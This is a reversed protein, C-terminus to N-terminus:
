EGEDEKAPLTNAASLLEAFESLLGSNAKVASEVEKRRLEIEERRMLMEELKVQRDVIISLVTFLQPLPTSIIRSDKAAEELYKEMIEHVVHSNRDMTNLMMDVQSQRTAKIADQMEKNSLIAYVYSRSINYNDAIEQTSIGNLYDNMIDVKDDWTIKADADKVSRNQVHPKYDISLPRNDKTASLEDNAPIEPISKPQDSVVNGGAIFKKNNVPIAGPTDQKVGFAGKAKTNKENSM